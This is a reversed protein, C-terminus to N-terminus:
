VSGMSSSSVHRWGRGHRGARSQARGCEIYLFVALHSSACKRRGSSLPLGLVRGGSILNIFSNAKTISQPNHSPVGEQFLAKGHSAQYGICASVQVSAVLFLFFLNARGHQLIHEAHIDIFTYKQACHILCSQGVVV